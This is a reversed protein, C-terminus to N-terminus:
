KNCTKLYELAKLYEEEDLSDYILRSNFTNTNNFYTLFGNSFGYIASSMLNEYINVDPYRKEIIYDLGNCIVVFTKEILFAETQTLENNKVMNNTNTTIIPMWKLAFTENTSPVYIQVTNLTKIIATTTKENINTKDIVKASAAGITYSVAYVKVDPPISKCGICM